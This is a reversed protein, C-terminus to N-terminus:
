ANIFIIHVDFWVSRLGGQGVKFVGKTGPNAKDEDSDMIEQVDVPQSEKPFGTQDGGDEESVEKSAPPEAALGPAAGHLDRPAEPNDPTPVAPPQTDATPQPEAPIDDDDALDICIDDHIVVPEIEEDSTSSEEESEEGGEEAMEMKFPVSLDAPPVPSNLTCLELQRRVPSVLSDAPSM